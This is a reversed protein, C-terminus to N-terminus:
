QAASSAYVLLAILPIFLLLCILLPKGVKRTPYASRPGVIKDAYAILAYGGGIGAGISLGPSSSIKEPLFAAAVMLLVIYAISGWLAKRAADPQGIAKFNQALLAGGAIPSFLVSFVRIARDSYLPPFTTAVPLETDTAPLM